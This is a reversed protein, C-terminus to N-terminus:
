LARCCRVMTGDGLGHSTLIFLPVTGTRGCLQDLFCFTTEGFSSKGKGVRKGLVDGLHFCKKSKESLCDM